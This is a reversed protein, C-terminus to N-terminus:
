TLLGLHLRPVADSYKALGHVEYSLTAHRRRVFSGLALSFLRLGGAGFRSANAAARPLAAGLRDQGAHTM